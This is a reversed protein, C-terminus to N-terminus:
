GIEYQNFFMSQQHKVGKTVPCYFNVISYDKTAVVDKAEGLVSEFDGQEFKEAIRNHPCFDGAILINM